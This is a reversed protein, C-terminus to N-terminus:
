AVTEPERFLKKDAIFTGFPVVSAVLAWFLWKMNKDTESKVGLCIMIYYIFLGGHVMGFIKNPMPMSYFYKLPMTIFLLVLFSLGEAFALVRLRGMPTSFLARIM